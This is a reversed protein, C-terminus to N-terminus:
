IAYCVTELLSDTYQRLFLRYFPFMRTLLLPIEWLDAPKHYASVALKPRCAAVSRKMGCIAKEEAGEIDLKIYTPKNEMPIEDLAVLRITEGGGESISSAGNAKSSFEMSGTRDYLGANLMEKQSPDLQLMNSLLIAYSKKDPEFGYIFQFRGGTAQLFSFITEGHCAGGDVFCEEPGLVFLDEPFYQNQCVGEDLYSFDMTMRHNILKQFITKSLDDALLNSVKDIKQKNNRILDKSYFGRQSMMVPFRQIPCGCGKLKEYTGAFNPTCVLIVSDSNKRAEQYSVVKTGDIVTGQKKPDDDIFSQLKCGCNRLIDATITGVGGAGYIIVEKNKLSAAYDRCTVEKTDPATQNVPNPM